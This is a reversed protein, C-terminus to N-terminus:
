QKRLWRALLAFLFSLLISTTIPFYFKFNEQDVYIDGPLRGLRIQQVWGLQWGVGLLILIVGVGMLTKAVPDM